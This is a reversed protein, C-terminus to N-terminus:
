PTPNGGGDSNGDAGGVIPSPGVLGTNTATPKRTKEGRTSTVAYSLDNVEFTPTTGTYASAETSGCPFPRSRFGAGEGTTQIANVYRMKTGRPLQTLAPTGTYPEFGLEPCSGTDEDLEVGYEAEDDDVYVFWARSGAM